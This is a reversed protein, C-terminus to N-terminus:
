LRMIKCVYFFINQKAYKLVIAFPFVYSDTITFMIFILRTYGVESDDFTALLPKDKIDINSAVTMEASFFKNIKYYFIEYFM